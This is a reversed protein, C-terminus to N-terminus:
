SRRTQTLSIDLPLEGTKQWLWVPFNNFCLRWAVNFCILQDLICSIAPLSRLPHLNIRPWPLVLSLCAHLFIVRCHVFSRVFEISSPVCTSFSAPSILCISSQHPPFILSTLPVLFCSFLCLVPILAFDLFCVSYVHQLTFQGHSELQPREREQCGYRGATVVDRHEVDWLMLTLECVHLPFMICIFRIFRFTDTAKLFTFNWCSIRTVLRGTKIIKM